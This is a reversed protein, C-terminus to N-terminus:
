KLYKFGATLDWDGWEEELFLHETCWESYLENAEQEIAKFKPAVYKEGIEEMEKFSFFSGKIKNCLYCAAVCNDYVYGKNNDKRDISIWPTNVKLLECYFQIFKESVGCYHCDSKKLYSFQEFSLDCNLGRKKARRKLSSYKQRM